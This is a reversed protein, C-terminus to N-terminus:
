NFNSLVQVAHVRAAAHAARPAALVADEVVIVDREIAGSNPKNEYRDSESSSSRSRRRRSRYGSRRDPCGNKRFIELTNGIGRGGVAGVFMM